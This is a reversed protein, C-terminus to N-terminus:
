LRFFDRQVEHRCEALLSARFNQYGRYVIISIFGSSHNITTSLSNKTECDKARFRLRTEECGLYEAEM